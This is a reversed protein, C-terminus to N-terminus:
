SYFEKGKSYLARSHRRRFGAPSVKRRDQIDYYLERGRFSLNNIDCAFVRNKPNATTKYASAPKPQACCGCAGGGIVIFISFGSTYAPRPPAPPFLVIMMPLVPTMTTSALCVSAPAFSRSASIALIVGFGTVVAMM